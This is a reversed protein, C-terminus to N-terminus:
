SKPLFAGLGIPTGVGSPGDFGKTADCALLGSSPKSGSAPYDCDVIGGGLDNPDGCMVAGVGDCYGDGGVTVDYLSSAGLHSYLTAAPYAVGHAGGALAWMAAILPAALSTGGITEWASTACGTACRYTDYVDFGTFPDAVAAVDSDLRKSGCDTSPWSKLARQWSPAAYTTSCGGGTAGLPQGLYNQYVDKPGNDNWVTESTREANQGLYLSTGGVSVVTPLASPTQPSDLFGHIGLFDFDFYGNDGASATIVTGKHDYDAVEAATLKGLSEPAGYSNTIENAKLKAAENVAAALASNSPVTAEVLIIKCTQCAAHVTEVDLSEEGSWGSEDAPPLSSSGTQSVKKFCGNATTCAALGYTTDFHNLDSAINPDDYADVIAVTQHVSASSNFGYASALDAPTLGGAPGQGSAPITNLYSHAGPTDKAVRQLAIADCTSRGRRPLEACLPRLTAYRMQGLGSGASPSTLPRSHAAASASTLPGALVGLAACGAALV